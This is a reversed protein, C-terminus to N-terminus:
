LTGSVKKELNNEAYSKIKLSFDIAHRLLEKTKRSQLKKLFFNRVKM